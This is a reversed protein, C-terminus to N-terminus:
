GIQSLEEDIKNHVDIIFVRLRNSYELNNEALSGELKGVADAMADILQETFNIDVMKIRLIDLLIVNILRALLCYNNGLQQKLIGSKQKHLFKIM